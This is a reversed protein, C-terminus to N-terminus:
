QVKSIETLTQRDIAKLIENIRTRDEGAVSGSGLGIVNCVPEQAKPKPKNAAALHLAIIVMGFVGLLIGILLNLM